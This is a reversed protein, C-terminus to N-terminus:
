RVLSFVSENLETLGVKRWRPGHDVIDRTKLLQITFADGYHRLVEDTPVSFPPGRMDAQKYELTILLMNCGPALISLMHDYYKPRDEQELAILAARDYVLQSDALDSERLDFFDGQLLCINESRYTTFRDGAAREFAISNEEFFAEIAIQSFEIGIVQYGQQAIWCMDQAKGCLPVFVTGGAPPAFQAFWTQLHSNVDTEHFGIRNEKWRDLWHQRDVM